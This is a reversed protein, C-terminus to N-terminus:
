ILKSNKASHEVYVSEGSKLLTSLINKLTKIAQLRVANDLKSVDILEGCDDTLDNAM